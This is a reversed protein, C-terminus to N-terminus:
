GRYSQGYVPSLAPCQEARNALKARLLGWLGGGWDRVKRWSM